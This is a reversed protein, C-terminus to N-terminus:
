YNNLIKSKDESKSLIEKKILFKNGTSQMIKDYNRGESYNYKQIKKLERIEALTISNNTKYNTRHMNYNINKIKNNTQHFKQKHYSNKKSIIRAISNGVSVVSRVPEFDNHQESFNNTRIHINERELNKLRKELMSNDKKLKHRQREQVNATTFDKPPPVHRLFTVNPETEQKEGEDRFGTRM